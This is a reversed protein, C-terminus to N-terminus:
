EFIDLMLGKSKLRSFFQKFLCKIYINKKLFLFFFLPFRKGEM